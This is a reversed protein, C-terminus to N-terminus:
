FWFVADIGITEGSSGSWGCEVSNYWQWWDAKVNGYAARCLRRIENGSGIQAAGTPSIPWSTATQVETCSRVKWQIRTNEQQLTTQSAKMNAKLSSINRKNHLWLPTPQTPQTATHSTHLQLDWEQFGLPIKVVVVFVVGFISCLFFLFVVVENKSQFIHHWLWCPHREKIIKNKIKNIILEHLWAIICRRVHLMLRSRTGYIAM